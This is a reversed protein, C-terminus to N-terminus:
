KKPRRRPTPQSSSGPGQRRGDPSQNSQVYQPQELQFSHHGAVSGSSHTPYGPTSWTQQQQQYNRGDTTTSSTSGSHARQAPVPVVGRHSHQGGATNQVNFDNRLREMLVSAEQEYRDRLHGEDWRQRAYELVGFTLNFFDLARRINSLVDPNLDYTPPRPSSPDYSVPSPPVIQGWLIKDYASWLVKLFTKGVHSMRRFDACSLCPHHGGPQIASYMLKAYDISHSFILAKHVDPIHPIRISPSLIFLKTYLVELRFLLRHPGSFIQPTRSWWDEAKALVSWVYADAAPVDTMANRSSENVEQYAISQIKRIEFLHLAPQISRLFLEPPPGYISQGDISATTSSSARPPDVATSDDTFSFAHRHSMSIQRDMCYLSHFVRRRLDLTDASINAEPPPEQHLGLDVLVRSGIGLLQWSRFHEADTMAYQTLLLIAQLGALSGPHLVEEAVELAASVQDLAHQQAPDNKSRAVTALAIALVVRVTWHDSAKAQRGPDQYVASLSAMLDTERLFPTLVYITDLYQQVLQTAHHRPPLQQSHSPPLSKNSSMTLLLRAWSM